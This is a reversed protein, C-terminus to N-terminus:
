CRGGHGGSVGYAAYRYDPSWAIDGGGAAGTRPPLQILPTFTSPDILAEAGFAGRAIHGSPTLQVWWAQGGTDVEILRHAQREYVFLNGPPAGCVNDVWIVRADDAAFPFNPASWRTTALFEARGTVVDVLFINITDDQAPAAVAISGWGAPTAAFAQFERVTAGTRTDIVRVLSSRAGGRPLPASTPDASKTIRFGDPTTAQASELREFFGADDAHGSTPASAGTRLDLSVKENGQTFFTLHDADLFRASRGRGVTSTHGDALDMLRVEGEVGFSGAVGAVWAVKAGDPSFSPLSGSGLDTAHQAARDFIVVSDGPVPEFPSAVPAPPVVRTVPGLPRPDAFLGSVTLASPRPMVTATLGEPSPAPQAM